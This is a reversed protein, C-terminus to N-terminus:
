ERVSFHSNYVRVERRRATSQVLTASAHQRAHHQHTARHKAVRKRAQRARTHRQLLTAAKGPMALECQRRSEARAIRGRALRQVHVAARRRKREHKAKREQWGPGSDDSSYESDDRPWGEPRAPRPRLTPPPSGGSRSRSRSESGSESRSGRGERGVREGESTCLSEGASSVSSSFCESTFSESRSRRPTKLTKRTKRRSRTNPSSLHAYGKKRHQKFDDACQDTTRTDSRERQERGADDRRDDNGEESREENRDLDERRLYAGTDPPGVWKWKGGGTSTSGVGGRNGKGGRRKGAAGASGKRTGGKGKGQGKGKRNRTGQQHGQRGGSEHRGRTDRIPPGGWEGPAKGTRGGRGDRKGKGKGKGTGTGLRRQTEVQRGGNAGRMVGRRETGLSWGQQTPAQGQQQGDKSWITGSVHMGEGQQTARLAAAARSGSGGSAYVSMDMDTDMDMNMDMDMNRGSHQGHYQGHHQADDLAAALSALAERENETLDRCLHIM